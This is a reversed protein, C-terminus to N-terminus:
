TAELWEGLAMGVEPSELDHGREFSKLTAPRDKGDWRDIFYVETHGCKPCEQVTLFPYLPIWAGETIQMHLSNRPLAKSYNVEEKPFVTHDGALRFCTLIISSTQQDVDMDIILRIPHYVCFALQNMCVTLTEQLEDCARRVERQSDPGRDHKFDNKVSAVKRLAKSFDSEKRGRGKWWLASFAKSVPDQTQTDLMDLVHHFVQLWSGPSIGGQWSDKLLNAPPQLNNAKAIALIVSGLFAMINEGLRLMQRYREMPNINNDILRYPYALPFPYAQRILLAIDPKEETKQCTAGRSLLIECLSEHGARSAWDLATNGLRDTIDLQTPADVLIKVAEAKGWCAAWMLATLGDADQANVSANHKLLTKVIEVHGEGSAIMLATRGAGDWADLDAGKNLLIEVIRHFGWFSAWMLESPQDWGIGPTDYDDPSILRRAALRNVGSPTESLLPVGRDILMRSVAEHGKQLAEILLTAGTTNSVAHIDAGKEILMEATEQHGNACALM